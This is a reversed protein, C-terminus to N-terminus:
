VPRLSSMGGDVGLVQGSIWSSQETLLFWAAQGIDEALGFRKLPHRKAAAEKRDDNSLLRTALPTDTLSPAVTNVRVTPAWEAALSRGLGEIAGKSAAVSSHYPMGQGVAVTSFLVVSANGSAKLAKEAVKLVKIAGMLNVELDDRFAELKLGRFPKLNITGPCYALADISAPLGEGSIEGTVDWQLPNVGAPLNEPNRSSAWVNAGAQLAHNVLSAGIGTAGGVILINKDKM